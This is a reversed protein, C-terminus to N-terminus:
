RHALEPSTVPGTPPPTPVGEEGGLDLRFPPYADTMLAAYAIVRYVWRNLGVLLDFLGRPYARGVLLVVGAVLALLGILGGGFTWGTDQAMTWTLGGGALVALVLYHPIALLWWKVLVLGRSLREPYAIDLTAPYGPADFAFPPYRDTGLGAYGYYAVRWTWRLIGVNVDFIGRPYRGTVLIALGAVVTLVAFATWLLALVVLHPLLLLWKVLWLWPSLPEDLRAELRVPYAPPGAPTAAPTEPAQGPAAPVQPVAPGTPGRRGGTASAVLLVIGALLVAGGAMLLIWMTPQLVPSRFAGSVQAAVGAAGDARMVVIEWTGDAGDWRLQQAGPGSASAAWLAEDAPPPPTRAGEIAQTATSTSFPGLWTVRDHAVGELYGDVATAPALGVFVAADDAAQATVTLEGGVWDPWGREDIAAGELVFPETVLAHGATEVEYVPSAVRGDLDGDRGDMFLLTAGGLAIGLGMLVALAGVVIGVVRAGSM